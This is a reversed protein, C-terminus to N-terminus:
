GPIGRCPGGWTDTQDPASRCEKRRERLTGKQAGRRRPLDVLRVVSSRFSALASSSSSDAHSSGSARTRPRGRPRDRLAVQLGSMARLTKVTSAQKLRAIQRRSLIPLGYGRFGKAIKVVLRLHTLRTATAHECWSKALTYAEQPELLPFRRMGWFYRTPCPKIRLKSEQLVKTAPHIGRKLRCHSRSNRALSATPSQFRV